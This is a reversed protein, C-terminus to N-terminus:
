MWRMMFMIKTQESNFKIVIGTRKSHHDELWQDIISENDTYFKYDAIIASLKNFLFKDTVIEM